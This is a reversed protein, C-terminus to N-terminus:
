WAGQQGGTQKGHRQTQLIWWLAPLIQPTLTHMRSLEWDQGSPGLVSRLSPLM